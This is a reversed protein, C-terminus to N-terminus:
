TYVYVGHEDSTDVYFHGKRSLENTNATGMIPTSSPTVGSNNVLQVTLVNVDSTVGGTANSHNAGAIDISWVQESTDWYLATGLGAATQEVIIGGDNFFGDGASGSALLIFTDEIQLNITSISTTSGNVTLNGAITTDGTLTSTGAVAINGTATIDTFTPSDTPTLGVDFSQSVENISATVGGQNNSSFTSGSVIGAPINSLTTYDVAGGGGGYSGTHFFKGTDSDYMVTKFGSTDDLSLSAFLHSSASISGTAVLNGTLTLNTFQPSDGIELGLDVATAALNNTTLTATGQTASSLVSASVIAVPIGTLDNYDTVGVGSSATTFFQGTANDYVVVGDTISSDDNSLSAFLHGSSSIENAMLYGFSGTGSTATISGANLSLNGDTITVSSGTIGVSGTFQHAVGGGAIDNAGPNSGSGFVNSGTFNASVGEIFSFGSFSFINGGLAIDNDIQLNSATINGSASINGHVTINGGTLDLNDTVTLDSPITVDDTLGIVVNGSSDTTVGIENATGIISASFSATAADIAGSIASSIDRKELQGSGGDVIVTM